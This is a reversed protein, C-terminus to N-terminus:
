PSKHYADMQQKNEDDINNYVQQGPMSTPRSKNCAIRTTNKKEKWTTMSLDSLVPLEVFSFIVSSM